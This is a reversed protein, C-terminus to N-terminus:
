HSSRDDGAGTLGLLRRMRLANDALTPTSTSATVVRARAESAFPRDLMRLSAAAFAEIQDAVRSAILAIDEPADNTFTETSHVVPKSVEFDFDETTLNPDNQRAECAAKLRDLQRQQAPTLTTM